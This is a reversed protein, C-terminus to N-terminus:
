DLVGLRALNKDMDRAQMSQPYEDRIRQYAKKAEEPQNNKEYAMGSRLLYMPTILADKDNGTAKSYYEIAKKANGTEMHADGLLGYAAYAVATGNGDFDELQKIANKADGTKLYCIGAYYHCLNATKTGSYKKMIKLFGPNQGDGNLAKSLSDSEFYRQADVIDRAAKEERPAKYLNQYVLFGVIAVLVVTLITNVPKKNKEYKDQLNELANTEDVATTTIREEGPQNRATNAM